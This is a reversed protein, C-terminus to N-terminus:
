RTSGPRRRLGLDTARRYLTSRGIRLQRSVESISGERDELAVRLVDAEIEELPRLIGSETRLTVTCRQGQGDVSQLRRGHAEVLEIVHRNVYNSSPRVKPEILPEHELNHM